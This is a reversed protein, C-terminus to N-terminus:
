KNKETVKGVYALKDSNLPVVFAHREIQGKHVLTAVLQGGQLHFECAYMQTTALFDGTDVDYSFCINTNASKLLGGELFISIFLIWYSSQFEDDSSKHTWYYDHRLAWTSLSSTKKEFYPFEQHYFVYSVSEVVQEISGREADFVAGKKLSLRIAGSHPSYGLYYTVDQGWDVAVDLTDARRYFIKDTSRIEDATKLGIGWTSLGRSPKEEEVVISKLVSADHSVVLFMPEEGSGKQIIHRKLRIYTEMRNNGPVREAGHVLVHYFLLIIFSYYVKM